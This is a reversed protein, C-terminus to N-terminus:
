AALCRSRNRALACLCLMHASPTSSPWQKTGQSISCVCYVKKTTSYGSIKSVHATTNPSVAPNMTLTLLQSLSYLLSLPGYLTETLGRPLCETLAVDLLLPPHFDNMATDALNMDMGINLTSNGKMGGAPVESDPSPTLPTSVNPWTFGVNGHSIDNFGDDQWEPVSPSKSSANSPSSTQSSSSPAPGAAQKRPRGRKSSAKPYSCQWPSQGSGCRKCFPKRGDCRAKSQRCPNCAIHRKSATSTYIHAMDLIEFQAEQIAAMTESSVLHVDTNWLMHSSAKM